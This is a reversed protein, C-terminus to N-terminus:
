LTRWNISNQAKGQIPCIIGVQDDHTHEPIEIGAPIRVPICSVNLGHERKTVLPKIHVGGALSHPEWDQNDVKTLINM